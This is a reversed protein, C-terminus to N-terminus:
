MGYIGTAGGTSNPAIGGRGSNKHAHHYAAFVLAGGGVVLAAKGGRSGAFNRIPGHNMANYAKKTTSGSMANYTGLSGRYMLSDRSVGGPLSPGAGRLRSRLLDRRSPMGMKMRM